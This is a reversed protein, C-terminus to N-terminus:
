ALAPHFKECGHVYLGKNEGRYVAVRALELKSCDKEAHDTERMKQQRVTRKVPRRAATFSHRDLVRAGGDINDMEARNSISSIINM